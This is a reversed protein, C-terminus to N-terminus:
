GPARDVAKRILTVSELHGDMMFPRRDIGVRDISGHVLGVLAGNPHDHILRKRAQKSRGQSAPNAEIRVRRVLVENEIEMGIVPADHHGARAGTVPELERGGDPFNEGIQNRPALRRGVDAVEPDIPRETPAGSALLRERAGTYEAAM